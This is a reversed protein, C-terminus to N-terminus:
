RFLLLLLINDLPKILDSFLLHVPLLLHTPSSHYLKVAQTTTSLSLNLCDSFCIVTFFLLISKQREHIDYPCTTPRGPLPDPSPHELSSTPTPPPQHYDGRTTSLVGVKCVILFLVIWWLVVSSFATPRSFFLSCPCLQGLSLCLQGLSRYRWLHLPKYRRLQYFFSVSSSLCSLPLSGTQKSTKSLPKL